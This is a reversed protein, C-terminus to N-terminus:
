GWLLSGGVIRSKWFTTDWVRLGDSTVAALSKSDSTFTIPAVVDPQEFVVSGAEVSWVVLTGDREGALLRGDPSLAVSNEPGLHRAKGQFERLLRRTEHDYLRIKGSFSMMALLPLKKPFRSAKCLRTMRSTTIEDGRSVKWLYRWEVGRLDEEGHKPIYRKLLDSVRGLNNETHAVDAVKMDSAYAILRQRREGEEARQKDLEAQIRLGSERKRAANADIAQWTSVATGLM